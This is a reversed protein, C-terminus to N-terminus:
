LNVMETSFTSDGGLILSSVIIALSVNAAIGYAMGLLSTAVMAGLLIPPASINILKGGICVAFAICLVIMLITMKMPNVFYERGFLLLIIVLVFMALIVILAGGIYSIVDFNEDDM